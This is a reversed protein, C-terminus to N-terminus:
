SNENKDGNEQLYQAKWEALCERTIKNNLIDIMHIQLALINKMVESAKEEDFLYKQMEPPFPIDFSKTSAFLMVKFLDTKSINDKNDYFYSFLKSSTMIAANKLLQEESQPTNESPIKNEKSM